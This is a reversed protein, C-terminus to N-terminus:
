NGDSSQQRRQLEWQRGSEILAPSLPDVYGGQQRRQLEWQRGSEILAPTLPDAYSSQQRRQLEWQQGSEIVAPSVQNGGTPAGFDFPALPSFAVIGALLVALLAAAALTLATQSSAREAPQAHAM